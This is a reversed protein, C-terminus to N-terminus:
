HSALLDNIVKLAAMLEPPTGAAGEVFSVTKIRGNDNVSVQYNFCDRCPSNKGYSDQLAYFGAKDLAALLASIQQADVQSQTGKPTSV